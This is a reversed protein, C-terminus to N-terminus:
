PLMQKPLWVDEFNDDAHSKFNAELNRTALSYKLYM